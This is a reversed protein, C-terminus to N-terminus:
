AIEMPDYAMISQLGLGGPFDGLGKASLGCSLAM